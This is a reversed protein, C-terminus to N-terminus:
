FVDPLISIEHMMGEGEPSIAIAILDKGDAKVSLTGPNTKIASESTLDFDFALDFEPSDSITVRATGKRKNDNAKDLRIDAVASDDEEGKATVYIREAGETKEVDYRYEQDDTVFQQSVIESEEALCAIFRANKGALVEGTYEANYKLYEAVTEPDTEDKM